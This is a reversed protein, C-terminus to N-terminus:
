EGAYGLAELEEVQDQSLQVTTAQLAALAQAEQGLERARFILAMLEKHCAIEHSRMYHGHWTFDQERPDDPLYYLEFFPGELSDSLFQKADMHGRLLEKIEADNYFGEGLAPVMEGLRARDLLPHSLQTHYGSKVPRTAILKWGHWELAAQEMMGGESFRPLPELESGRLLPLLSRGHLLRESAGPHVLELLTPYLDVLQVPTTVTRGPSRQHPQKVLLPVGVTDEYLLAHNFFFDHEGTSEGHDASIIILCDDYLGREELGRLLLELGADVEAIKQDYATVIPAVALDVPKDDEPYYSSVIHDPICGYAFGQKLGVPVKWDPDILGDDAFLANWPARVHYPAHTDFAQVFLFFPEARGGSDLWELVRAAVLHMGGTPDEIGIESARADYHDFGQRFGFGGALWPNDVFAATRFGAARLMEALTWRNPAIQEKEWPTPDLRQGRLNVPLTHARPLLGTFQSMYSPITWPANAWCSRFVHAERAFRALHPSTERAYGYLSLHQAALTDISVFVIPTREPGGTEHLFVRGLRATSRPDEPRWSLEVDLVLGGPDPLAASGQLRGDRTELLSPRGLEQLSGDRGSLTRFRLELVGSGTSTGEIELRTRGLVEFQYVLACGAGLTVGVGDVHPVTVFPEAYEVRAM